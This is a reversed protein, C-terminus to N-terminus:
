QSTGEEMLQVIQEDKEQSLTQFEKLQRENSLSFLYIYLKLFISCFM